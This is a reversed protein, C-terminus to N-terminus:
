ILREDVNKLTWDIQESWFDLEHNKIILFLTFSKM